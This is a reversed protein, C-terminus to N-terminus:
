GEISRGVADTAVQDVMDQRVVRIDDPSNIKYTVGRWRVRRVFIAGITAVFYTMQTLAIALCLRTSIQLPDHRRKTRLDLVQRARADLWKLTVVYFLFYGSLGGLLLFVDTWDISAWSPNAVGTALAGVSVGLIATTSFCHLAAFPFKRHYLRANLLQRRMWRFASSFDISEANALLLSPAMEVQQGNKQTHWAMLTDEFLTKSWIDLLNTERIYSTKIALSGGWPIKYVFMQVSAAVYWLYRVLSGWRRDPPTYWRNGTSVVIHPKSLPAVLDSLWDADVITDADVLAVVETSHPLQRVATTLCHNKLGCKGTPEVAIVISLRPDSFKELIEAAPDFESDLLCYVAYNEFRQNLLARLCNELYPDAGRLCLVIATEPQFSRDPNEQVSSLARCYIAVLISQGVVLIALSILLIWTLTAIM